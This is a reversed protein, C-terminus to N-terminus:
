DEGAFYDAEDKELFIHRKPGSATSVAIGLKKSDPYEVLDMGQGASLGLYVCPETGDNILQHACDGAPFSVFDGPGIPTQGGPTRVKAHGSLVFLAEETVHHMHFPFSTKGPALEWISAGLKSGAACAKSRQSFKGRQLAPEWQTENTKVIKM